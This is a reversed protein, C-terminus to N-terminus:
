LITSIGPRLQSMVNVFKARWEKYAARDDVHVKMAMVANSESIETVRNKIERQSSVIAQTMEDIQTALTGGQM